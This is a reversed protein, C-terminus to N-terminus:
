AAFAISSAACASRAFCYSGRSSCYCPDGPARRWRQPDTTRLCPAAVTRGLAREMEKKHQVIGRWLDRAREPDHREHTLLELLDAHYDQELPGLLRSLIELRSDDLTQDGALLALIDVGQAEMDRFRQLYSM